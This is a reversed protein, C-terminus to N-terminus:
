ALPANSRPGEEEDSSSQYGSQRLSQSIVPGPVDTLADNLQDNAEGYLYYHQVIFLLDFAISFIGMGFKTINGFISVWSDYNHAILFMQALSLTGGTLDLIINGISWGSTAKRKYNMYAQPTYKILTIVLKVYSLYLIVDLVEITGFLSSIWLFIGILICVSSFGKTWLAVGQEGRQIAIQFLQVFILIPQQRSKNSRSTSFSTTFM